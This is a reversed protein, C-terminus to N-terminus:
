LKTAVDSAPTPSAALTTPPLVRMFAVNILVYVVLVFGIGAIISRPLQKAPDKIEGAVNTVSIWGDYAWLTALIAAGLGTGGAVNPVGVVSTSAGGRLVGWITITIIPILKGITAVTQIVGGQKTGIINALILLFMVGIALVRQTGAGMPVLVNAQTAFVIALAAVSGPTYIVTQVWGLLFGWFEGYIENLYVYLGGTKPIAAAIEAVTLGAALTIVGGLLWALLAASGSGANRIVAGPKFFIGSGIVMGVVISVAAFFGLDERLGGEAPGKSGGSYKVSDHQVLRSRMDRDSPAKTAM